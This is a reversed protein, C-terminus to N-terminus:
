RSRATSSGKRSAELGKVLMAVRKGAVDQEGVQAFGLESHFALSDPNVPRTNVECCLLALGRELAAREAEVYLARGVGRRRHSAAVAIRDVYLFGRYRARFWRFNLSAYDADETMGLLFGAPAGVLTALPALASIACLREFVEATEAGVRPVESQNLEWAFRRDAASMARFAIDHIGPM